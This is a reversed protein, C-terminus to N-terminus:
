FNSPQTLGTLAGIGNPYRNLIAAVYRHLSIRMQLTGSLPVPTVITKPPSEWLFMDSPRVCYAVDSSTGAPIGGDLYVPLGFIKGVSYFGGAAPLQTVDSAQTPSAIPRNSSDVSSAIWFWRRPAMLWFEPPLLRNNGVAAATQGLLPWLNAITTGTSGNVSNIGSVNAVGLLQETQQTTFGTSGTLLQIELGKNYARTLEIWMAADFGGTLSTLDYLQQSVDQQGAITIVTSNADTTVIDSDSVAGADYDPIVTAGSTIRPTHISQIGAPLVMPNLLDGFPRGARGASAFKDTIWLPIDFEAMQGATLSNPNVRYEVPAGDPTESIPQRLRAVRRPMEVAMERQHRELRGMAEPDRIAPHQARIVDQYFSRPADEAYTLPETVTITM